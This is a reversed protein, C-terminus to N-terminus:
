IRDTQAPIIRSVKIANASRIGVQFIPSQALAGRAKHYLRADTPFAIAKDQVTTDVNVVSLSAASVTKTAIGALVTLGLM